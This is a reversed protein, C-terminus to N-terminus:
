LFSSFSTPVSNRFNHSQWINKEPRSPTTITENKGAPKALRSTRLLSGVTQSLFNIYSFLQQGSYILNVSSWAHDLNFIPDIDFNFNISDFNKQFNRFRYKDFRFLILFILFKSVFVIFILFNRNSIKQYL